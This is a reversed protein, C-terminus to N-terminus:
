PTKSFTRYSVSQTVSCALSGLEHVVLFCFTVCLDSPRSANSLARYAFQKYDPRKRISCCVNYVSLSMNENFKTRVNGQCGPYRDEHSWAMLFILSYAFKNRLLLGPAIRRLTKLNIVPFHRRFTSSM